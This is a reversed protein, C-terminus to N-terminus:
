ARRSRRGTPSRRALALSEGVVEGFSLGAEAAAQPFSGNPGFDPIPDVEIVQPGEEALIVEVLAAGECGLAEYAGLGAAAASGVAALPRGDLLAVSQPRGQVLRELLVREDYEFASVLAAPVEFWSAAVEPGLPAAVRSSKIVLPFGLREEVDELAGAAGLERFATENFAFWDPTAVGALRLERKAVAKDACRECVGASSGTYPIGLIELLEQVTGDGGGGRLAVFAVDPREASLRRVLDPGVEVPTVEHGLRALAGEVRAASRLSTGRELSPGGKLM